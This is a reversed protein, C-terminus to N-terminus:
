RHIGTLIHKEVRKSFIYASTHDDVAQDMCDLANRDSMRVPILLMSLFPDSLGVPLPVPRLTKALLHPHVGGFEVSEEGARQCRADYGGAPRTGILHM